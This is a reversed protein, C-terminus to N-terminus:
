GIPLGTYAVRTTIVPEAVIHELSFENVFGMNNLDRLAKITTYDTHNEKIYRNIQNILDSEAEDRTPAMSVFHIFGGGTEIITFLFLKTKM